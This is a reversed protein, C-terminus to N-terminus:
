TTASSRPTPLQCTSMRGAPVERGWLDPTLWVKLLGMYVDQTMSPRSHGLQDAILRASLGAEDLVTATTKRFNHSTVWEYGARDLAERLRHRTNSPDRIGGLVDPFVPEDLRVGQAWRRRLDAMAWTPLPLSRLGAKSKTSKRILGEGRLRIVTSTVDVRRADLDVDMWLLGLCEGIRLGTALMFRALEPVDYRAASEDAALSAFLDARETGTLARPEKEPRGGELRGADRVPNSSLAGYRVAVGLVGSVISRCTRATPVGVRSALERLFRDVLQPTMEGLRVRGLAPLVKSTLHGDYTALTGPSRSGHDVMGAIRERWLAAAKDFRDLSSLGHGGALRTQEALATRLQSQAATKSRGWREVSRTVGDFGRFLTVARWRVQEGRDNVVPYARISGWQGLPLPARGM